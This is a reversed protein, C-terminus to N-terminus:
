LVGWHSGQDAIDGEALVEGLVAGAASWRHHGAQAVEGDAAVSKGAVGVDAVGAAAGGSVRM